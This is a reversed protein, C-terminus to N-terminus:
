NTYGFSKMMEDYAARIESESLEPKMQKAKKRFDDYPILNPNKKLKEAEKEAEKMMNEIEPKADEFLSEAKKLEKQLESETNEKPQRAKEKGINQDAKIYADIVQFADEKTLGSKDNKLDDMVGMQNLLQDFDNQNPAKTSDNEDYKLFFDILPKVSDISAKNAKMYAEQIKDGEDKKKETQAFLATSTFLCITIILFQKM